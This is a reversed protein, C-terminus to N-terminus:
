REFGEAWWSAMRRSWAQIWEVASVYQGANMARGRQACTWTWPGLDDPGLRIGNRREWWQLAFACYGFPILSAAHRAFGADDLATPHSVEVRHGLSELL